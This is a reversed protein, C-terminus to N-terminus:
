WSAREIRLAKGNALFRLAGVDRPARPMVLVGGPLHNRAYFHGTLKHEGAPSELTIAIPEAAPPLHLEIPAMWEAEGDTRVRVRDYTLDLSEPAHHVSASAMLEMREFVGIFSYDSMWSPDCYGMFDTVSTPSHLVRSVLDYGWVGIAGDAYPFEPDVNGADCPAHRRGHTHGVEHLSTGM